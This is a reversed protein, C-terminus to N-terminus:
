RAVRDRVISPLVHEIKDLLNRGLKEAINRDPTMSHRDESMIHVLLYGAGFGALAAAFLSSAPRDQVFHTAHEAGRGLYDSAVSVMNEPNNSVYETNETLM